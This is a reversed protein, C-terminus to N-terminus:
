KSCWSRAMIPLNRQAPTSNRSTDSDPIISCYGGQLLRHGNRSGSIRCAVFSSWIRSYANGNLRFRMTQEVTTSCRPPFTAACEAWRRHTFCCQLSLTAVMKM